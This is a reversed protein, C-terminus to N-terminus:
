AVKNAMQKLKSKAERLTHSTTGCSFAHEVDGKYTTFYDQKEELEKITYGFWKGRGNLLAYVRFKKGRNTVQHVRDLVKWKNFVDLKTDYGCKPCKMRREKLVLNDKTLPM